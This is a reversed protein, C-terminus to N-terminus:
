GKLLERLSKGPPPKVDQPARLKPDLTLWVTEYIFAILKDVDGQERRVELRKDEDFGAAKDIMAEIPARAKPTSLQCGTLRDFERMFSDNQLCERVCAEFTVM